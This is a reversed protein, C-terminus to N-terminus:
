RIVFSWVFGHAGEKVQTLIVSVLVSEIFRWGRRTRALPRGRCFRHAGYKSACQRFVAANKGFRLGLRGKRGIAYRNDRGVRHRRRCLRLSGCRLDAPCHRELNKGPLDCVLAINAAHTKIKFCWAGNTTSRFIHERPDCAFAPVGDDVPEGDLFHHLTRVRAFQQKAGNNIRCETGTDQKTMASNRRFHNRVSRDSQRREIGDQRAVHDSSCAYRSQEAAVPVACCGIM